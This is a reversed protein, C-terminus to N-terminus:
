LVNPLEKKLDDLLRSNMIVKAKRINERTKSKEKMSKRILGIPVIDIEYNKKEIHKNLNISIALIEVKNKEASILYVGLINELVPELILMADKKINRPNSMVVVRVDAGLLYKPLLVGSSNGVKITRRYFIRQKINPM